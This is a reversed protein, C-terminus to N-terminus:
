FVGATKLVFLADVTIWENADNRNVGGWDVYDNGLSLNLSTKYYKKESPWGKNPIYKKQLLNLADACRKDKIYGAEAMIKLGGLIDFHWYLPYHLHTFEDSIPLGNSKRKYLRRELLFEAAKKESNKATSDDFSKNYLSLGRFTIATHIITSTSALPNKDCNWGGDPWQWHLLREVLNQIRPDELGLKLLYYLAYGQQSACTRHRGEMVPIGNKKYSDAKSKAEFEQYFRPSLWFSLVEDKVKYLAKDNFPYGIDALTTLIWHAGQWKDYVSSYSSIKGAENQNQLLSNVHPCKKIEQSLKRVKKSSPDEGLVNVLTKYRVSPKDSQLLSNIEYDFNM